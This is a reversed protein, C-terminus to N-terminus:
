MLKKTLRKRYEVAEKDLRWGYSGYVGLSHIPKRLSM